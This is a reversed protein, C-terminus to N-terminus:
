LFSSPPTGSQHSAPARRVEGEEVSKGSEPSGASPVRKGPETGPVHKATGCEGRNGGKAGGAGCGTARSQEDAECCSHRFRVERM